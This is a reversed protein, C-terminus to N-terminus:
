RAGIICLASSRCLNQIWCLRRQSRTVKVFHMSISVPLSAPAITRLTLYKWRMKLILVIGSNGTCSLHACDTLGNKVQRVLTHRFFFYVMPLGTAGIARVEFRIIRGSVLVIEFCRRVHLENKDHAQAPSEAGGIDDEDMFSGQNGMSGGADNTM